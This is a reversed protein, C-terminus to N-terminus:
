RHPNYPKSSIFWRNCTECHSIYLGYKFYKRQKVVGRFWDFRPKNTKEDKTELRFTRVEEPDNWCKECPFRAAKEEILEPHNQIFSLVKKEIGIFEWPSLFGAFQEAKLSVDALVFSRSYTMQYTRVHSWLDDEAKVISQLVKENLIGQRYKAKQLEELEAIKPQLLVQLEVPYYDIIRENVMTYFDM